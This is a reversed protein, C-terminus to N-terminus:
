VLPWSVRCRRRPLLDQYTTWIGWACPPCHFSEALLSPVVPASDYALHSLGDFLPLPFAFAPLAYTKFGVWALVLSGVVKASM